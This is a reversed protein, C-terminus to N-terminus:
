ENDAKRIRLTFVIWNNQEMEMNRCAIDCKLEECLCKLHYLGLGRGNGKESRELQFWDSIEDFSVYHYPNKISFEYEEKLEGVEFIIMKETSEKQAEVANDFLIGLMEIVHYIPVQSEDIKATVKYKIKIGDDEAEQFKGYLYGVLITDGLLLLRNYKHEDMLQKCYEEQAQVLKEYTKHTYHASFIAAMHNKLEHQRLRVKILLNEYQKTHEGAKDIEKKMREAESQAMFWKVISYLLILVAPVVLVFYQVQVEYFVKGQLLMTMIVLCIFGLVVMVYKSKRCLSEQLKHLGCKPLGVGCIGLILMNGVANKTYLECSVTISVLSFCIFQMSTLVVIYLILSIVVEIVSSKFKKMCYIFLFIYVCFSYVGDLQHYNATELVVLTSLILGVTNVDLKLKRGYICHICIVTALIEAVLAVHLMM